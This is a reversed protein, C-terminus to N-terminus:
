YPVVSGLIYRHGDPAPDVLSRRDERGGGLHETTLPVSL